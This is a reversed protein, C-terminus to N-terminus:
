AMMAHMYCKSINTQNPFLTRIPVSGRGKPKESKQIFDLLYSPIVPNLIRSKETVFRGACLAFSYGTVSAM